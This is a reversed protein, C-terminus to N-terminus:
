APRGADPRAQLLDVVQRVAPRGFAAGGDLKEEM